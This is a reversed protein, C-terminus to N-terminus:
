HARLLEGDPSAPEERPFPAFWAAFISPISAIAVFVFYNRYGLHDAIYGSTAQTPVLVLNMLATCFAYHTMHYKGPSIQQMMYLMNAVFGFSYGFKEITVLMGITTLSLPAVPTVAHSLYVFCLHPINMCLAMVMLSKKLGYKAIFMGGLVGAVLSVGTSIAGDLFAKDALSLGLGGKALPAQMFLPAEVLLFGEGIRYFFVFLLMGVIKPKRLFDIVTEAFTKVIEASNEPRRIITGTPLAYWHYAALGAMALAAFGLAIAWAAKPSQGSEQLKGALYVVRRQL